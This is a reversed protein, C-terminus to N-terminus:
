NEWTFLFFYLELGVDFESNQCNEAAPKMEVNGFPHHEENMLLEENTDM